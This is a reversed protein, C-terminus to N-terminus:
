FVVCSSLCISVFKILDRGREQDRVIKPVELHTEEILHGEMFGLLLKM